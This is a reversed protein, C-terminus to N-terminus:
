VISVEDWKRKLSSKHQKNESYKNNLTEEEQINEEQTDEENDDNDTIEEYESETESEDLPVFDVEASM